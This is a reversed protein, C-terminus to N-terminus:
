ARLCLTHIRVRTFQRPVWFASGGAAQRGTRFYLALGLTHMPVGLRKAAPPECTIDVVDGAVHHRHLFRMAPRLDRPRNGFALYVAWYRHDRKPNLVQGPLAVSRARNDHSRNTVFRRAYLGLTTGSGSYVKIQLSVDGDLYTANLKFSGHFDQGRV